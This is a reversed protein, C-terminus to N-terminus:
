VNKINCDYFVQLSVGLLHGWIFMESEICSDAIQERELGRSFFPFLFDGCFWHYSSLM